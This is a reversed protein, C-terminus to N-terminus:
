FADFFTLFMLIQARYNDDVFQINLLLLLYQCLVVKLIAKVGCLELSYISFTNNKRQVTKQNTHNNTNLLLKYADMFM